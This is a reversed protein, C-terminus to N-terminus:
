LWMYFPMECEDKANKNCAKLRKGAVIKVKNSFTTSIFYLIVYETTWITLKFITPFAKFYAICISFVNMCKICAELILHLSAPLTQKLLYIFVKIYSFNQIKGPFNTM